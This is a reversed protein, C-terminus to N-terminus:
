VGQLRIAFFKSIVNVPPPLSIPTPRPTITPTHHITAAYNVFTCTGAMYSNM